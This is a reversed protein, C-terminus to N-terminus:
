AAAEPTRSGSAQDQDAQGSRTSSEAAPTLGPEEQVARRRMRSRSIILALEDRQEETFPPRSAAVKRVLKRYAEDEVPCNEGSATESM